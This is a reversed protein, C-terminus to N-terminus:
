TLKTSLPAPLAWMRKVRRMGQDARERSTSDCCSSRRPRGRRPRPGRMPSWTCLMSTAPSPPGTGALCPSRHPPPATAPPSTSCRIAGGPISPSTTSPSRGIPRRYRRLEDRYAAVTQAGTSAPLLAAFSDGDLDYAMLSGDEGVYAATRGALAVTSLTAKARAVPLPRQRTAGSARDIVLMQDPYLQMGVVRDSTVSLGWPVPHVFALTPETGANVDHDVLPFGLDKGGTSSVFFLHDDNV